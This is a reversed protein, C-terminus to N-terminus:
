PDLDVEAGQTRLATSPAEPTDGGGKRISRIVIRELVFAMVTMVAGVAFREVRRFLSRPRATTRAM